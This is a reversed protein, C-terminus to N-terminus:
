PQDSSAVPAGAEAPRQVPFLTFVYDATSQDYGIVRFLREAARALHEDMLQGAQEADRRFVAELVANHEGVISAVVDSRNVARSIWVELLLRMGHLLHELVANHSARALRIHYEVDYRAAEAPDAVADAMRRMVAELEQRDSDDHRLAALRVAGVELVRRAEIVEHVKCRHIMMALGILKGLVASGPQAVYTGSGQRVEVAGIFALSRIAERVTSRGVGLRECLVQETPLRSGPESTAILQALRSTVELHLDPKYLPTDLIGRFQAPNATPPMSIQGRKEKMM